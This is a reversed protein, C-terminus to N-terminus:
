RGITVEADGVGSRIQIRDRGNGSATMRDGAGPRREQRIPRGDVSLRISGVNARVDVNGWSTTASRVILKGVGTEADISGEPVDIRLSGVGVNAKVGGQLGQVDMDGVGMEAELQLRPPIEVTWTEKLGEHDGGLSVVLTSGRRTTRLDVNQPNGRHREDNSRRVEVEVRIGAGAGPVIRMNGVHGEVEVATLGQDTENATLNRSDQGSAPPVLLPLLILVVAFACFPPFRTSNM